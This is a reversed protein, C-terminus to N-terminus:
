AKDPEGPVAQKAPRTPVWEVTAAEDETALLADRRPGVRALLEDIDVELEPKELMRKVTVTTATTLINNFTWYLGLGAPANLSFWGIMLPLLRLALAATKSQESDDLAEFSGLLELSITQAIVLILPITLYCLTDHWGYMPANNAWGTTLWSLGETRDAIPGSLSPIWLFGEEYVKAKAISTVSYYVGLFIPIQAIAPLCGALPNVNVKEFLDALNSNKFQTNDGYWKSLIEQQPKIAKMESSTSIQNWNLPLTVLKVGLVFVFISLGYPYQVGASELADHLWIIGDEVTKIYTGWWGLTGEAARIAEETLAREAVFSGVTNVGHALEHFSGPDALASPAPSRLSRVLPTRLAVQLPHVSPLASLLALASALRTLSM